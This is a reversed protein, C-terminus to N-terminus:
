LTETKKLVAEPTFSIGNCHLTRCFANRNFANKICEENRCVYAGRGEMSMSYDPVVQGNEDKVFRIMSEKRSSNRCGICRRLREKHNKKNTLTPTKEKM